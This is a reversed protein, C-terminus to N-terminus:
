PINLSRKKFIFFVNVSYFVNFVHCSYFVYFVNKVDRAILVRVLSATKSQTASRQM